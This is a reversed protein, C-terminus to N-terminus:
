VDIRADANVEADPVEANVDADPVDDASSVDMKMRAERYETIYSRM